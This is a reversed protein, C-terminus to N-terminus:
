RGPWGPILQGAPAFGTCERARDMRDAYGPDSYALARLHWLRLLDHLHRFQEPRRAHEIATGYEALFQAHYEDPLARLIEVPDDPTPDDIPHVSV